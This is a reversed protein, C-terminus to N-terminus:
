RFVTPHERTAAELKVGLLLGLFVREELPLELLASQDQTQRYSVASDLLRLALKFETWEGALSQWVDRWLRATSENFNHSLLDPICEVFAQRLQALLQHKYYLLVLVKTRLRLLNESQLVRYLYRILKTASCAGAVGSCATRRLAEDLSASGEKWRNQAFLVEARKFHVLASEEGLEVARDMSAVADGYRRMGAQAMGLLLLALPQRPNAQIAREAQALAKEYQKLEILAACAYIHGMEDRSGLEGCKAFSALAEEYCHLDLLAMGRCMWASVDNGNLEIAREFCALALQPSRTHLLIAGRESWALGRGPDLKIARDCSDLAERFRGMSCLASGRLMWGLADNKESALIKDYCIVAARYRGLGRLCTAQAYLDYVSGRIAVLEEAIRLARSLDRDQLAARYEQCCAPLREHDYEEMAAGPMPHSYERELVAEPLFVALREWLDAPCFWSRLFDLLARVPRGRLEGIEISLRMLPERVDYYKAPGVSCSGVYGMLQLAELHSMAVAPTMFCYSAIEHVAVPRRREGIFSLLKRQQASLSALRRRYYPTLDDVIRMLPEILDDLSEGTLFPSFVVYARHNGGALCRLARMRARGKPTSLFESLEQDSHSGAIKALLRETDQYSLEGLRHVQFIRGFAGGPSSLQESPVRSTALISCYRNEQLYRELRGQGQKGLRNFLDDLGEVLVLLMREGVLSRLVNEAASEAEDPLLSYLSHIQGALGPEIECETALAQVISLLLDLFHTIESEEERLWALCLRSRLDEMGRLRYYMLSILHTKGIGPPGALLTYLPSATLASERIQSLIRQARDERQVFLKELVEPAM